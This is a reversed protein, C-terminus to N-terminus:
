SPRHRPQPRSAMPGGDPRSGAGGGGPLRRAATNRRRPRPGPRRPEQGIGLPRGLRDRNVVRGNGAPAALPTIADVRPGLADEAVVGPDLLLRRDVADLGGRRQADVRGLHIDHLVVAADRDVLQRGQVLDAEQVPLGVRGPQWPQGIRVVLRGAEAMPRPRVELRIARVTMLEIRAPAAFMASPNSTGRSFVWVTSTRGIWPVNLMAPARIM